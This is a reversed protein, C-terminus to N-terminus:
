REYFGSKLLKKGKTYNVQFNDMGNSIDLFGKKM